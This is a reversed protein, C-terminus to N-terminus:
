AEEREAYKNKLFVANEFMFLQTIRDIKRLHM